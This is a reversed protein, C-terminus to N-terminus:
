SYQEALAALGSPFADTLAGLSSLDLMNAAVPPALKADQFSSALKAATEQLNFGVWVQGDLVTFIKSGVQNFASRIMTSYSETQYLGQADLVVAAFETIQEGNDPSVAVNLFALNVM